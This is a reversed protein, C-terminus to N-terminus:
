HLGYKKETINNEITLMNTNQLITKNITEKYIYTKALKTTKNQKTNCTAWNAEM